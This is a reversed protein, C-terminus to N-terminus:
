YGHSLSDRIQRMQDEAIDIFQRAGIAIFLEIAKELKKIAEQPEGQEVHIMAWNFWARGEGDKDGIEELMSQQKRYYEIALPYNGEMKAINGLNGFTHAIGELDNM